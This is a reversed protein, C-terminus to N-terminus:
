EAVQEEDCLGRLEPRRFAGISGLAISAEAM